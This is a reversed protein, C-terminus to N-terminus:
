KGKSHCLFVPNHKIGHVVWGRVGGHDEPWGASRLTVFLVVYGTVDMERRCSSAVSPVTCLRGRSCWRRHYRWMSVLIRNQTRAKIKFYVQQQSEKPSHTGVSIWGVKLLNTTRRAASDNIARAVLDDQYQKCNMGEHISQFSTHRSIYFCPEM